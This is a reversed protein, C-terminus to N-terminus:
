KNDKVRQRGQESIVWVGRKVVKEMDGKKVMTNRAWHAANRWRIEKPDSLHPLYDADHLIDKMIVGVSDVVQATSAKGGLEVLAKLVPLEFEHENTRMNKSVRGLDRRPVRQEDEAHNVEAQPPMIDEWETRMALVKERLLTIAAAKQRIEDVTSYDGCDFAAGGVHNISSAEEELSEILLNFAEKVNIETDELSM